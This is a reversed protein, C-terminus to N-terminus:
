IYTVSCFLYCCYGRPNRAHFILRLAKSCEYTVTNVMWVCMVICLESVCNGLCFHSAVNYIRWLCSSSNWLYCSLTGTLLVIILDWYIYIYIWQFVRSSTLVNDYRWTTGVHVTWRAWRAKSLLFQANRSYLQQQIVIIGYPSNMRNRNRKLKSKNSM